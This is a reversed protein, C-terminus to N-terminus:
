KNKRGGRRLCLGPRLALAKGTVQTPPSPSLLASGCVCVRVHVSKGLAMLRNRMPM